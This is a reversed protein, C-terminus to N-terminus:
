PQIPLPPTATPLPPNATPDRHPLLPCPCTPPPRGVVYVVRTAIQPLTPVQVLRSCHARARM